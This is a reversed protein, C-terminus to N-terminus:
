LCPFTYSFFHHQPPSPSCPLQSGQAKLIPYMCLCACMCVYMYVYIDMYYYVYLPMSIYIFFFPTSSVFSFTATSVGAGEAYSVYTCLHVRVCTYVCAPMCIVRKCVYMNVYTDMYYYSYLPMSIYLFFYPASSVFSFM